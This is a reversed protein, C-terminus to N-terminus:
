AVINKSGLISRESFYNRKRWLLIFIFYYHLQGYHVIYEAIKELLDQNRM